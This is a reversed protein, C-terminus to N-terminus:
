LTIAHREPDLEVDRYNCRVGPQLDTEVTEGTRYNRNFGRAELAQGVTPDFAGGSADAVALAFRVVEFLLPSVTVPRGISRTLGMVESTPEFRSCREEVQRFWGFAREVALAVDDAPSRDVVQVTVTTDMLVRTQYYVSGASDVRPAMALDTSLRGETGLAREASSSLDHRGTEHGQRDVMPLGM